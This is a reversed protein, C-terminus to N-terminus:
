KKTIVMIFGKSFTWLVPFRRILNIGLYKTLNYIKSSNGCGIYSSRPNPLIFEYNCDFKDFFSRMGLYSKSYASDIYDKGKSCVKVYGNALPLPLYSLFPLKYHPELPWLKNPATLYMLAGPKMLDFIRSYSKEPEPTHEFSTLSIILDFKDRGPLDEVLVKRFSIKHKLKSKQLKKLSKLYAYEYPEVGTIKKVYKAMELTYEGTGSGVDLVVANQLKKSMKQGLSDIIGGVADKVIKKRIKSGDSSIYKPDHFYEQKNILSKVNSM